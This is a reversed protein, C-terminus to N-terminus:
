KKPERLVEYLKGMLDRSSEVYTEIKAISIAIIQISKTNEEQQKEIKEIRSNQALLKEEMVAHKRNTMVNNGIIVLLTPIIIAVIAIWNDANLM